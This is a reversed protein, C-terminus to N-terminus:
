AVAPTQPSAVSSEKKLYLLSAVLVWELNLLGAWLVWAGGGGSFGYSHLGAAVVFNVVYWSLLIAAFCLVASVALGFDKVWGIYRAHLPIVYCVLAILAGVEKPDWGWFRGWAEAAWWGGLLTGTALLVVALQMARYTFQSLMKLHDRSGKRFALLALSINGLGWALTGGAYGCVITLVHITLWYNTRLVPVMPSIRPDLALPLQDALVLALTAVAAGALAIVKKRYILELVLAFIAAIFAVFIVSEYMNTVPAWGSISVRAYFGWTQVALSLGYLVLGLIYVIRSSLMLAGFLVVAAALMAIWSWLFPQLRNYTLELDIDTPEPFPGKGKWSQGDMRAILVTSADRFHAPDGALYAAQVNEYTNFTAPIGRDDKRLAEANQKLEIRLQSISHWTEDPQQWLAAVRLPDPHRQLKAEFEALVIEAPKDAIAMLQPVDIFQESSLANTHLRTVARGCIQDYLVLRRAVEEAKLHIPRLEQHAKGQLWQRAASVDAILEDFRASKRLDAPSVHKPDAPQPDYQYIAIRLSQHDCLIFPYHEWDTFGEGAGKGGTLWWALVIAVPDHGEFKTRGTIQRITENAFSQLPKVRGHQVPLAHWPTYDFDPLTSRAPAPSEAHPTLDPLLMFFTLWGLVGGNLLAAGTLIGSTRRSPAPM